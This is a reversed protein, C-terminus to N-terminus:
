GRRQSLEEVRQWEKLFALDIDPTPGNRQKGIIFELVGPKDTDPDYYEDRYLFAVFDADQEIEGSDRLDSLVPRKDNRQEVARSLQALLIVPIDLERAIQKFTRSIEGVSRSRTDENVGTVLQLYDVVLLQIDHKRKLKRAENKIDPLSKLDPEAQFLPIESLEGAATTLRDWSESDFSGRAIDLGNTNTENAFLRDKLEYDSMELSFLGAPIGLEKTIHKIVELAVATKGMSPRAAIIHLNQDKIGGTDQNVSEWPWPLGVVNDESNYRRELENFYDQITDGFKFTRRKQKNDLKSLLEGAKEKIEVSSNDSHGLDKIKQGIKIARRKDAEEKIQKAYHKANAATAMTDALETLYTATIDENTEKRTTVLDIPKDNDYLKQMAKYIQGHKVQYFDHETIFESVEIIKENDLFISGLVAKEAEIDRPVEKM